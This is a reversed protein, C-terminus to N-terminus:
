TKSCCGSWCTTASITSPSRRRTGQPTAVNQMGANCVIGYLDPLRAGRFLDAFHRVSAQAGLDLPLFAAQGGEAELTRVAERGLKPDRCAVVVLTSQDRAVARAAALGLGTNGGTIIVSRSSPM